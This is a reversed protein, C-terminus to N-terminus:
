VRNRLDRMLRFASENPDEDVIRGGGKIKLTLTRGGTPEHEMYNTDYNPRRVFGASMDVELTPDRLMEEVKKLLMQIVDESLPEGGGIFKPM